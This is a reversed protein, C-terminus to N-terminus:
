QRREVRNGEGLWKNYGGLLAHADLGAQRLM